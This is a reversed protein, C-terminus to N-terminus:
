RMRSRPVCRTHMACSTTNSSFRPHAQSLAISSSVVGIYLSKVLAYTWKSPAPPTPLEEGLLGVGAGMDGGVRAGREGAGAVVLVEGGRLGVVVGAVTLEEDGRVVAGVIGEGPVDEGAGARTSCSGTTSTVGSEWLSFRM